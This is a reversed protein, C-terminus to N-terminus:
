SCHCAAEDLFASGKGALLNDTGLILFTRPNLNSTPQYRQTGGRSRVSRVGATRKTRKGSGLSRRYQHETTVSKREISGEAGQGDWRWTAM